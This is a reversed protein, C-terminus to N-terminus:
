ARYVSGRQFTKVILVLQLQDLRIHTKAASRVLEIRYTL